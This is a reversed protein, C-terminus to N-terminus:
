EFALIREGPHLQLERYLEIRAYSQIAQGPGFWYGLMEGFAHIMLGLIVFCLTGLDFAAFVGTREMDPLLRAFRVFPVIPAALGYLIRKLTSWHNTKSRLGAFIRGGYLKHRFFASGLSTNIHAVSANSELFLQKGRRALDQHMVAESTLMALLSDGYHNLTERKYCTNHGPLMARPGRRAPAIWSGFSLLMDANSVPSPNANQMEVSVASYPGAHAQILADAWNPSPFAHDEAYAILPATSENFGCLRGAAPEALTKVRVLKVSHFECWANAHSEIGEPRPTVILLEIDAARTQARLHRITKKIHDFDTPALLIVSLAPSSM